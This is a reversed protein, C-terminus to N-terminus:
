LTLANRIQGAVVLVDTHRRLIAHQTGQEKEIARARRDTATASRRRAHSAARADGPRILAPIVPTSAARASATVSDAMASFRAGAPLDDMPGVEAFLRALGILSM